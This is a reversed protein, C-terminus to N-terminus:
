AAVDASRLLPVLFAHYPAPEFRHDRHLTFPRLAISVGELTSSALKWEVPIEFRVERIQKTQWGNTSRYRAADTRTEFVYVVRDFDEDGRFVIFGRYWPIEVLGDCYDCVYSTFLATM